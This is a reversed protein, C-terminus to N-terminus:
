TLIDKAMHNVEARRRREHDIEDLAQMLQRHIRCLLTERRDWEEANALLLKIHLCTEVRDLPADSIIRQTLTSLDAAASLDAEWLTRRQVRFWARTTM